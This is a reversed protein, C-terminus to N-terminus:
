EDIFIIKKNGIMMKLQTSTINSLQERSDPEDGNLYLTEKQHKATISEILTTKGVQRAGFLLIAKGKFLKKEIQPLIQRRIM